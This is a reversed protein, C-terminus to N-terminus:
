KCIDIWRGACLAAIISVIVIILCIVSIISIGIAWCCRNAAMSLRIRTMLGQAEDVSADLDKLKRNIALLREKQEALEDLCQDALDKLEETVRLIRQLRATQADMERLIEDGLLLSAQVDARTPEEPDKKEEAEEKIAASFPDDDDEKEGM